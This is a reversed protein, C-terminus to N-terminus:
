KEESDPHFFPAKESRFLWTLNNQQTVSSIRCDRVCDLIWPYADIFDQLVALVKTKEMHDVSEYVSGEIWRFGNNKMHQKLLEYTYRWNKNPYSNELAHTDLDFVVQKRSM